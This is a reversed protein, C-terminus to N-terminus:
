SRNGTLIHRKQSCFNDSFYPDSLINKPNHVIRTESEIRLLYKGDIIYRKPKLM